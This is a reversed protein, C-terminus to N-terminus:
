SEYRDRCSSASVNAIADSVGAINCKERQSASAKFPTLEASYHAM